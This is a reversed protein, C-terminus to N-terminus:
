NLNIKNKIFIEKIKSRKNKNEQEWLLGVEDNRYPKAEYAIYWLIFGIPIAVLEM